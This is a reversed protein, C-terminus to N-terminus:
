DACLTGFILLPNAGPAGAGRIPGGSEGILSEPQDRMGTDASVANADPERIKKPCLREHYACSVDGDATPPRCNRRSRISRQSEAARRRNANWGTGEYQAIRNPKM